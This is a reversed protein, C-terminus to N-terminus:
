ANAVEREADLLRRGIWAMVNVAMSNGLMRYRAADSMPKGKFDILTYDDPFGQLRECERPTLRRVGSKECVHNTNHGHGVGRHMAGLAFGVPMQAEAAADSNNRYNSRITPSVDAVIPVGLGTGDESADHGAAKLTHAVVFNPCGNDIHQNDLGWKDAYNHQLTGAVSPVLHM